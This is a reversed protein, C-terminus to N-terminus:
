FNELYNYNGTYKFLGSLVLLNDYASSVRYSWLRKLGIKSLELSHMPKQM